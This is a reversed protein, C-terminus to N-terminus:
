HSLLLVSISNNAGGKDLVLILSMARDVLICQKFRKFAVIGDTFNVAIYEIIIIKISNIFLNILFSFVKSTVPSSGADAVRELDVSSEIKLNTQKIM